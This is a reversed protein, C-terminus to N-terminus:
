AKAIERSLALNTEGFGESKRDDTRESMLTRRVNQLIGLEGGNRSRGEENLTDGTWAGTQVARLLTSDEADLTVSGHYCICQIPTGTIWTLRM